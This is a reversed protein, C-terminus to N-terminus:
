SINFTVSGSPNKGTRYTVTAVGPSNATVRMRVLHTGTGQYAVGIRNNNRRWPTEDRPYVVMNVRGKMATGGRTIYDVEPGVALIDVSQNVSSDLAIPGTIPTLLHNVGSLTYQVMTVPGSREIIEDRYRNQKQIEVRDYFRMSLACFGCPEADIPRTYSMLCAYADKSDHDLPQNNFNPNVLMTQTPMGGGMLWVVEVRTHAHRLSKVHGFEHACTSTAMATGNGGSPRQMWFIRDGIYAGLVSGVRPDKCLFMFMGNGDRQDTRADGASPDPIGADSCARKIAERAFSEVANFADFGASGNVVDPFLTTDYVTATYNAASNINAVGSYQSKLIRTWAERTLTVFSAPKVVELFMKRYMARVSNWRIHAELTNNALICLKFQTKRWMVFRGTVYTRPKAIPKDQDDVLTVAAGNDQTDRIDKAGEVLTFLFRYKDGSAPWPTFATDAVGVKKKEGSVDEEVETLEFIAKYTQHATAGSLDKDFEVVDTDATNVDVVPKDKYKVKRLVEKAQVGPHGASPTRVGKFWNLANDDGPDPVTDTRNYKDFFDQLFDKRRGDNQAFEEVPNKIEVVVKLTKDLDAQKDGIYKRVVVRFPVAPMVDPLWGRDKYYKINSEDDGDNGLLTLNEATRTGHNDLVMVKYVTDSAPNTWDGGDGSPTAAKVSAADDTGHRVQNPIEQVTSLLTGPPGAGRRLEYQCRYPPPNDVVPLATGSAPVPDRKIRDHKLYVLTIKYKVPELGLVTRKEATGDQKKKPTDDAM